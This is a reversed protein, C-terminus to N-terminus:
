HYPPTKNELDDFGGSIAFQEPALAKDHRVVTVDATRGGAGLEFTVGDHRFQPILLRIKEELDAYEASYSASLAFTCP